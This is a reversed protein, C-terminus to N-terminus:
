TCLKGIQWLNDITPHHSQHKTNGSNSSGRSATTLLLQGSLNGPTIWGCQTGAEWGERKAKRPNRRRRTKASLNRPERLTPLWSLPRACWLSRANLFWYIHLFHIFTCCHGTRNIGNYLIQYLHKIATWACGQVCNDPCYLSTNCEQIQMWDFLLHEPFLMSGHAVELVVPSGEPRVELLCTQEDTSETSCFIRWKGMCKFVVAIEPTWIVICSMLEEDDRYMWVYEDPATHLNWWPSAGPCMPQSMPPDNALIAPPSLHRHSGIWSAELHRLIDWPVLCPLKQPWPKEPPLPHPPKGRSTQFKLVNGDVGAFSGRSRAKTDPCTLVPACARSLLEIAQSKSLNALM